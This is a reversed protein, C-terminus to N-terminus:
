SGPLRAFCNSGGSPNKSRINTARQQPMLRHQNQIEARDEEDNRNAQHIEATVLPEHNMKQVFNRGFSSSPEQPPKYYSPNNHKPGPKIWLTSGAIGAAGELFSMVLLPKALHWAM